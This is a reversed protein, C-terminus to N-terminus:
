QCWDDLRQQLEDDVQQGARILMSGSVGPLMVDRTAFWEGELERTFAECPLGRPPNELPPSQQAMATFAFAVAVWVGLFLSRGARLLM